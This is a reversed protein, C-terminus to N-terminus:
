KLLAAQEEDHYATEYKEHSTTNPNSAKKQDEKVSQEHEYRKLRGNFTAFFVTAVVHIVILMYFSFTYEPRELGDVDQDFNRMSQFFPIFLASSLNSCLQQIVLVTNSCLPYAVEVALETSVPQLPGILVAAILLSWKLGNGFEADLSINCEALAFAGLFLLSLTILRYSRTKDTLIGVFISSLMVLIQFSGGVIGVVKRGSGGIRVLYDMYTSLTNLVIGSATFAIVSHVFGPRSFCARISRLIQDDRIDIDLSSGAQSLIPEAGDDVADKPRPLHNSARFRMSQPPVPPQYYMQPHLHPQPLYPQPYQEAHPFSGYSPHHPQSFYHYRPDVNPPYMTQPPESPYDYPMFPSPHSQQPYGGSHMPPPYRLNAFPTDPFQERQQIYQGHGAIQEQPTFGGQDVGRQDYQHNPWEHEHQNHERQPSEYYGRHRRGGQGVRGNMMPSPAVADPHHLYTENAMHEIQSRCDATSEIGSSPSPLKRSSSRLGSENDSPRSGSKNSRSRQSGDRSSRRSLRKGAGSGSLTKFAATPSGRKRDNSRRRRPRNPRREVLRPEADSKNMSSASASHRSRSGSSGGSIMKRHVPAPPYPNNVAVAMNAFASPLAQRITNMYPIKVVVSGRMVRATGSPPTDPADRFQLFCGIFALTSLTSLLGFYAPIDDTEFVLMTGFVFACGIGLQNSNLAMGTAFTREKEPFWSCSLIAPTCQYLPQSLGVLCFGATIRWQADEDTLSTGIIGPIGGSKIVSGCMLLFSGFVVTKRLGLRSLLVPEFATAIANSALFITVLQEPNINGYAEGTLVAIPAVSYCTWDSLLNLISMYMLMLWRQWYVRYDGTPAYEEDGRPLAMSSNRSNTTHSRFSSNVDNSSQADNSPNGIGGKATMAIHSSRGHDNTLDKGFSRNGRREVSGMSIRGGVAGVLENTEMQGQAAANIVLKFKQSEDTDDESYQLIGLGAMQLSNTSVHSSKSLDRSRVSRREPSSMGSSSLHSDNQIVGKQWVKIQEESLANHQAKPRSSNSRSPSDENDKHTKGSGGRHNGSNSNSNSRSHSIPVELPIRHGVGGSSSSRSRTNNHFQQNQYQQQQDDGHFNSRARRKQSFHSSDGDSLESDVHHPDDNLIPQEGCKWIQNNNNNKRTDNPMAANEISDTTGVSRLSNQRRHRTPKAGAGANERDGDNSKTLRIKSENTEIPTSPSLFEVPDRDERGRELSMIPSTSHSGVDESSSSVLSSGSSPYKKNSRLPQNDSLMGNKSSLAGASPSRVPKPPKHLAVNGSASVHSLDVDSDIGQRPRPYPSSANPSPIPASLTRMMAYPQDLSSSQNNGFGIGMNDQITSLSMEDDNSSSSLSLDSDMAPTRQSQFGHSGVRVLNQRPIHGHGHPLHASGGNLSSSRSPPLHVGYGKHNKRAASKPSPLHESFYSGDDSGYSSSSGDDEDDHYGRHIGRRHLDDDEEELVSMERMYTNRDLSQVRGRNNIPTPVAINSNGHISTRQQHNQQQQESNKDTGIGVDISSSPTDLHVEEKKSGSHKETHEKQEEQSSGSRQQNEQQNSTLGDGRTSNDARETSVSNSNSTSTYSRSIEEQSNADKPLSSKSGDQSTDPTIPQPLQIQSQSNNLSKASDYGDTDSGSNVHREVDNTNDGNGEHTPSSSYTNETRDGQLDLHNGKETMKATSSALSVLSTSTTTASTCSTKPSGEHDSDSSLGSDIGDMNPFQSHSQSSKIAMNM